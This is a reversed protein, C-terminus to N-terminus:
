VRPFCPSTANTEDKGQVGYSLAVVGSLLPLKETHFESQFVLFRHYFKFPM